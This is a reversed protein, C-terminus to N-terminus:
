NVTTNTSAAAPTTTTTTSTPMASPTSNCTFNYWTKTSGQDIGVNAGLLYITFNVLLWALLVFAFGFLTNKLVGKATGILGQDGASVIYMVGGVVLMLLAVVVFIKFGWDIIDKFGLVLHCLTCRQAPDNGDGCPVLGAASVSNAFFGVFIIVLLFVPAIMWIQSINKTKM